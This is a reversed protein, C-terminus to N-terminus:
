IPVFQATKVKFGGYFGVIGKKDLLPIGRFLVIPNRGFVYPTGRSPGMNKSPCAGSFAYSLINVSFPLLAYARYFGSNFILCCAAGL